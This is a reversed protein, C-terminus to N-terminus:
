IVSLFLAWGKSSLDLLYNVIYNGKWIWGDFATMQFVAKDREISWSHPLPLFIFLHDWLQTSELGFLFKMVQTVISSSISWSSGKYAHVRRAIAFAHLGVSDMHCLEQDGTTQLRFSVAFNLEHFILKVILDASKNQPKWSGAKQQVAPLLM